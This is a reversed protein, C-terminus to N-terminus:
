STQRKGQKVFGLAGEIIREITMRDLAANVVDAIQPHGFLRVKGILELLGNNLSQWLLSDELDVPEEWNRLLDHRASEPLYKLPTDTEAKMAPIDLLFLVNGEDHLRLVKDTNEVSLTSNRNRDILTLQSLYAVIDEQIRDQLDVLKECDTMNKRYDVLNQWVPRGKSMVSIRKFLKRTNIMNVLIKGKETTNTNFWNLVERDSPLVQTKADLPSEEWMTRAIASEFFRTQFELQMNIDGNPGPYKHIRSEWVARHLMSKIARFTHHWYVAGFMAYRAFAVAEASFKGKEHIGLAAYTHIGESRFIVTLSSMLRELDIVNAYPIALTRADRILYDLKDVDLPGNIITNLVRDKIPQTTDQPNAKIIRAIRNPDVQWDSQVITRLTGSSFWSKDGRLVSVAIDEHQFIGPLAEHLDHALPFHGLDHFLASLLLCKLDGVNMIQKFLPNVPDNYLSETVRIANSFAGLSHQLRTHTATPYVHILLGLESVGSLRQLAPHALLNALRDSLPTKWNSATQVTDLIFPNLEPLLSHLPFVGTLKDLDDSLEDFSNYKLERFADRPLGLATEQDSNRGELCRAAMLLLYKRDFPSMRETIVNPDFLQILEFMTKGFAFIDFSFQIERRKILGRNRNSDSTTQTRLGTLLPHAYYKTYIVPIEEDTDERKRASGLDSLLAEGDASVLINDPKVDFHVIGLSHLHKIGDVIQKLVSILEQGSRKNSFYKKASQAGRVFKMIYYPVKGFQLTLEDRSYIEIVNRHHAELLYVIETGITENFLDQHQQIPRPFKLAREVGLKEDKVRLIVATGGHDVPALISYDRRKLTEALAPIIAQLRDKEVDWNAKGDTHSLYVEELKKWFDIPINNTDYQVDNEKEKSAPLDPVSIFMGKKQDNQRTRQLEIYEAVITKYKPHPERTRWKNVTSAPVNMERAIRSLNKGTEKSLAKLEDYIYSM